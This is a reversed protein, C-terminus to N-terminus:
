TPVGRPRKASPPPASCGSPLVTVAIGIATDKEAEALSEGVGAAAKSLAASISRATVGLGALVALISAVAGAVDSAFLTAAVVVLVVVGLLTLFYPWWRLFFARGLTVYGSFIGTGARLYDESSLYDAPEKEGTLISRWRRSQHPLAKGLAEDPQDEAQVRMKTGTAPSVLAVPARIWSQWYDISDLVAKGVHSPLISRLDSVRRRLEGLEQSAKPLKGEEWSAAEAFHGLHRGVKYAKGLRPDAATLGDKAADDFTDIPKETSTSTPANGPTLQALEPPAIGAASFAANLSRLTVGVQLALTHESTGSQGGSSESPAGLRAVQWGLAVAGCVSEQM